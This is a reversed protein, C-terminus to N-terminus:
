SSGLSGHDASTPSARKKLRSSSKEGRLPVRLNCTTLSSERSSAAKRPAVLWLSVLTGETDLHCVQLPPPHPREWGWQLTSPTAGQRQKFVGLSEGAPDALTRAKRKKHGLLFYVNAHTASSPQPPGCLQLPAPICLAPPSCSALPMAGPSGTSHRDLAQHGPSHASICTSPVQTAIVM